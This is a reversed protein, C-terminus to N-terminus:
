QEVRALERVPPYREFWNTPMGHWEHLEGTNEFLYTAGPVVRWTTIRLLVMSAQLVM